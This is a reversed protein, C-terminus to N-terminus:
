APPLDLIRAQRVHQLPVSGLSRCLSSSLMDRGPGVWRRDTLVSYM